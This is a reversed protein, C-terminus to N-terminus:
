RFNGNIQLQKSTDRDGYQSMRCRTSKWRMDQEDRDVRHVIRTSSGGVSFKPSVKMRWMGPNQHAGLIPTLQKECHFQFQLIFNKGESM